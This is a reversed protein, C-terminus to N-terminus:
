LTSDIRACSLSSMANVNVPYTDLIMKALTFCNSPITKKRVRIAEKILIRTTGIRKM